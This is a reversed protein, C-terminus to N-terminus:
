PTEGWFSNATIAWIGRPANLRYCLAHARADVARFGAAPLRRAQIWPQLDFTATGSSNGTL